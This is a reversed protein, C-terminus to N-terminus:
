PKILIASVDAMSEGLTFTVAKGNHTLRYAEGGEGKDLLDSLLFASTAGKTVFVIKEVGQAKLTRIGSLRGTLIALDEDVTVTLVGGKQEATYAIDRGDKDTVRYLPPAILRSGEDPMTHTEGCQDYRVCKATKTGDHAYTADNNSVYDEFLHGLKSDTDTVTDTAMCGGTGYRVCRATKTGDQECTADNNSVYDEVEFLHGLKSDTDTVTDTEMCDGTGYRVCKATKTGDQECTADNNSVYDEVEFFHGLKSGTDTVTDTETCGGTGYRVCRITKTGDQGCTANNDSVYEQGDFSHNLAPIEENKTHSSHRTCTYTKVGKETCTAPKTVRGSDWAHDGTPNTVTKSPTGTMVSGPAYYEIKGSPNLACIDPEVETGNVPGNQDRVGGNGIGAGQGDDGTKGGRVKLKADGSVTVDGSGRADLGGGIGAGCRGGAASVEGGSITIDNGDRHMGGGIGAAFTGGTATVKGGSISINNGNGWGGGGIGAGYNGSNATVEGGTVTIDSGNGYAGGGIGAGYNGGRATVKGGTITIDSGAGSSGGGIGAGDQGGKANLSGDKDKDQITLNGDNNKELGAHSHGSKLANSGNLEINVNGEGTTSVAAKGASSVDINAGSLTVNATQDKEANITVTNETSSGKIVPANDEVAAGGGQTVTQGGSGANVIIDGNGIDWTAALASVPLSALLLLALLTSVIKRKKM